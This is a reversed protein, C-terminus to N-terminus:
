RATSDAPAQTGTSDEDDRVGQDPNDPVAEVKSKLRKMDDFMKRMADPTLLPELLSVLKSDYTFRGDQEVRTRGNGLDTLKYLVDGDFSGPVEVHVGVQDPPDWLTITGPVLMKGKMRPDDMVWTERHGIGEAPTTTDPLVQALFGVWQTLQEPETIWPWIEEPAREIEVSARMRGADRRNSAIWLGLLGLVLVAAIVGAIRIAWKM